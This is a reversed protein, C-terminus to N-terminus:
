FPSPLSLDASEDRLPPQAALRDVAERVADAFIGAGLPGFHV